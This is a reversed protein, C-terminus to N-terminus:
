SPLALQRASISHRGLLRAFELASLQRRRQFNRRKTLMRPVRLAAGFQARLVAWLTRWVSGQRGARAADGRGTVLGWFSFLYRIVSYFPVQILQRAPFLKWVLWIRNREVLFIKQPAYPGLTASHHHLAVASPIYLCKWGCIRVRLGLDADDGYAFFDEDFLGASEFVEARYMAAAGDPFLVEEVREYQGRDEEGHGRGYNQGDAYMLHGTKDIVRPSDAFLIKCACMGVRTDMEFGQLMEKLWAPDLAADNNVLAIFSGQSAQIGQNVARGFGCNHPNRIVTLSPFRFRPLSDLSGDTSGNDVLVLEFDSSTQTELSRLCEELLNRRNWNVVIISAQPTM